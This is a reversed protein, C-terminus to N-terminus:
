STTGAQRALEAFQAELAELRAEMRDARRRQYAAELCLAETYRLGYREGAPTGPSVTEIEDYVAVKLVNGAEDAVAPQKLVREVHRTEPVEDWSDHCVVGYRCADFGAKAFAEVVEQAVLGAHVRAEDGKRAVADRFRYSTFGVSGWADLVADPFPSFDSKYRADSINIEGTTAVVQAWLHSPAGLSMTGSGTPSLPIFANASPACGARSFTNESDGYATLYTYGKSDVTFGGMATLLTSGDPGVQGRYAGVYMNQPNDTPSVFRLGVPGGGANEIDVSSAHMRISEGTARWVHYDANGLLIAKEPYVNTNNGFNIGVTGRESVGSAAFCSQNVLIANWFGHKGKGMGFTDLSIGAFCRSGVSDTTIHLSISNNGKKAYNAAYTGAINQHSSFEGGLVLGEQTSYQWSAGGAGCADGIGGDRDLKYSYGAVGTSDNNGSAANVTVGCLSKVYQNTNGGTQEIYSYLGAVKGGFAAGSNDDVKSSIFVAPRINEDNASGTVVLQAKNSPVKSLGFSVKARQEPSLASTPYGEGLVKVAAPAGDGEPASVETAGVAAAGFVNGAVAPFIARRTFFM